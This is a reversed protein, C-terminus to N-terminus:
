RWIVRDFEEDIRRATPKQIGKTASLVETTVFKSLENVTISGDKDADAAKNKLGQIVCYTFIGNNWLPSELAFSTGASATIVAAGSGRDPNAFLEQMLEFSNHGMKPKVAGTKINSGARAVVVGSDSVASDLERTREVEEKDLEGSHCADILLIKKIAPLRELLGELEEYPIGKKDPNEFDMDHTAYYFNLSDDLLGHGSIYLVVEDNVSMNKVHKYMSDLAHRQVSKNFFTDIFINEYNGRQTSDANAFLNAIDRGDKVAYKLNYKSDSYESVSMVLVYLNPKENYLPVYKIYILEKSSEIGAANMCSLQIKNEGPILVTEVNFYGKEKSDPLETGKSGFVPVNNVWVFLRTVVEKKDKVYIKYKIRKQNTILPLSKKDVVMIEPANMITKQGNEMQKGLSKLRKKYANEYSIVLGSDAKGIAKLVLDPRNYILDFQEAPFYKRGAEFTIAELSKKSAFYYNDRTMVIPDRDTLPIIKYLLDHSDADFFLIQNKLALAYQKDDMSFDMGWAFENLDRRVRVLKKQLVDVFYYQHNDMSILLVNGKHNLVSKTVLSKEEMEKSLDLILETKNSNNLYLRYVQGNGLVVILTLSSKEPLIHYIRSDADFTIKSIQKLHNHVDFMLLENGIGVVVASDHKVFEPEVRYRNFDSLLVSDPHITDNLKSHYLYKNESVWAVHQSQGTYKLNVVKSYFDKQGLVADTNVDFVQLSNKLFSNVSVAYKRDISLVDISSSMFGSKQVKTEKATKLNLKKVRDSNYYLQNGDETFKIDSVYTGYFPIDLMRFGTSPNKYFKNLDAMKLGYGAGGMMLINGDPSCAIQSTYAGFGEYHTVYNRQIDWVSITNEDYNFVFFRGNPTFSGAGTYFTSDGDVDLLWEDCKLAGRYHHTNTGAIDWCMMRGGVCSAMLNGSFRNFYISGARDLCHLTDIIKNQEYNWKRIIKDQGSTFLENTEPVFTFSNISLKDGKLIRVTKFNRANLLHLDPSNMAVGLYKFDPSYAICRIKKPFKKQFIIQKSFVDWQILEGDSDASLLRKSDQSWVMSNVQNKHGFLGFLERGSHADWIKIEQEMGSSAFYNGDNSFEIFFDISHGTQLHMKLEVPKGVNAMENLATAEEDKQGEKKFIKAAELFFLRASDNEGIYLFRNAKVFLAKGKYVPKGLWDATETLFIEYKKARNFYESEILELAIKKWEDAYNYEIIDTKYNRVVTKRDDKSVASLFRGLNAANIPTGYVLWTAYAEALILELGAYRKYEYTVYRFFAWLHNATTNEMAYKLSKGKFIGAPIKMSLDDKWSQFTDAKRAILHIENLFVNEVSYYYDNYRNNYIESFDIVEKKNVDLFKINRLIINDYPNEYKIYDPVFVSCELLDGKKPLYASDKDNNLHMKWQSYIPNIWDIEGTGGSIYERRKGNHEAVLVLSSGANTNIRDESGGLVQVMFTNELSDVREVSIIKFFRTIQFLYEKTQYRECYTNSNRLSERYASRFGPILFLIDTTDKAYALDFLLDSYYLADCYYNASSSFNCLRQLSAIMLATDPAPFRDKARHYLDSSYALASDTNGASYFSDAKAFYPAKYITFWQGKVTPFVLWIALLMLYRM